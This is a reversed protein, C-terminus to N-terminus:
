GSKRNWHHDTGLPLLCEGNESEDSEFDDVEGVTSFRAVANDVAQEEIRQHLIEVQNQLRTLERVVGDLVLNLEQIVPQVERAKQEHYHRHHELAAHIDRSLRDQMSSISSIQEHMLTGVKNNFKRVLPRRIPSTGRWLMRAVPKLMRKIQRKM